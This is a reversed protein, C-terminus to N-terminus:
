VSVRGQLLRENLMEVWRAQGPFRAFLQELMSAGTSRCDVPAATDNETEAQALRGCTQGCERLLREYLLEVWRDQEPYRTFLRELMSAGKSWWEVSVAADSELAARALRDCAQGCERLLREDLLEVWRDQEPYRAFLRELMSAGKSWWEVSVPADNELGARALRDCARGGERLLREYLIEAWEPLETSLSRLRDLYTVGQTYHSVADSGSAEPVALAIRCNAAAGHLLQKHLLREMFPQEGGSSLCVDTLAITRQRLSASEGFRESKMEDDAMKDLAAAGERLQAPTLEELKAVLWFDNVGAPAEAKRRVRKAKAQPHSQGKTKRAAM